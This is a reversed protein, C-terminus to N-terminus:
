PTSVNDQQLFLFNIKYDVIIKLMKMPIYLM